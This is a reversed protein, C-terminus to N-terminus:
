KSFIWASNDEEKKIIALQKNAEEISNFASYSVRYMGYKNRGIIESNYGKVSLTKIFNNANKLDSFSGAVIFYKKTIPINATETKKEPIKVEPEVSKIITEEKTKQSEIETSSLEINEGM